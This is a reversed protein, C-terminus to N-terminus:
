VRNSSSLREPANEGDWSEVAPISHQHSCEGKVHTTVSEYNSLHFTMKLVGSTWGDRALLRMSACERKTIIGRSKASSTDATLLEEHDATQM